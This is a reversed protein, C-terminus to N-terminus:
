FAMQIAFRSGGLGGGGMAEWPLKPASDILGSGRLRQERNLMRGQFLGGEAPEEAHNLSDTKQWESLCPSKLTQWSSPLATPISGLSHSQLGENPMCEVAQCRRPPCASEVSPLM